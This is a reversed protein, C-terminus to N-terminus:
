TNDETTNKSDKLFESCIHRLIIHWDDVVAVDAKRHIPARPDSNISIIFKSKEIGAYFAPAGSVGAAICIEPKIMAGSVGILRNMATWASMAVPRSVGLEAGLKEAAEAMYEIGEQSKAGRGAALIFPANELNQEQDEPAFTFDESFDNESREVATLEKLLVASKEIETVPEACSRSVSLCFPARKLAFEAEMHGSYVAKTVIIRERACEVSDVAAMSTGGCRQGMRIALESGFCNGTFLYVDAAESARLVALQNLMTETRANALCVLIAGYVPVASLLEARNADETHFVVAVAADIGKARQALFAALLRGQERYDDTCANMVLVAKM